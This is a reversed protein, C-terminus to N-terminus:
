AAWHSEMDHAPLLSPAVEGRLAAEHAAPHYARVHRKHQQLTAGVTMMTEVCRSGAESQTGVSGKRWLVGSRM